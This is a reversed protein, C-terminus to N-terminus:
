FEDESNVSLLFKPSKLVNLNNKLKVTVPPSHHMIHNIANGNSILKHNSHNFHLQQPIERQHRYLEHELKLIDESNNAFSGNNPENENHKPPQEGGSGSDSASVHAQKVLRPIRRPSAIKSIPPRPVADTQIPTTNNQRAAATPKTPTISKRILKSTPSTTYYASPPPLSNLTPLTSGNTTKSSKTPSTIPSRLQINVRARAIPSPPSIIDARLQDPEWDDCESPSFAFFFSVAICFAFILLRLRPKNTYPFKAIFRMCRENAKPHDPILNGREASPPLM